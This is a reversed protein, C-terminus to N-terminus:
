FEASAPNFESEKEFVSFESPLPPRSYPKGQCYTHRVSHLPSLVFRWTLPKSSHRDQKGAITTPSPEEFVKYEPVDGEGLAVRIQPQPSTYSSPASSM